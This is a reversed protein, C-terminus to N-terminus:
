EDNELFEKEAELQELAKNAADLLGKEEELATEQESLDSEALNVNGRVEDREAEADDLAEKYGTVVSNQEDYFGELRALASEADELLKNRRDIDGDLSAIEQSTGYISEAFADRASEKGHKEGQLNSIKNNTSTIASNIDNKQVLLGGIENQLSQIQAELEDIDDDDFQSYSQGPVNANANIEALLAEIAQKEATKQALLSNVGRLDGNSENLDNYFGSLRSNLNDIENQLNAKQSEADRLASYLGNRQEDLRDIENQINQAEALIDALAAQLRALAQQAQLWENRKLAVQEESANLSALLSDLEAQAAAVAAEQQSIGSKLSQAESRKDALEQNIEDIRDDITNQGQSISMGLSNAISRERKDIEAQLREGGTYGQYFKQAFDPDTRKYSAIANYLSQASQWNQTFQRKELTTYKDNASAREVTKYVNEAKRYLNTLDSLNPASAASAQLRIPSMHTSPRMSPSPTAAGGYSSTNAFNSIQQELDRMLDLYESPIQYVTYDQIKMGILRMADDIKLETDRIRIYSRRDSSILSLSEKVSQLRELERTCTTAAAKFWKQSRVQAADHELDRVKILSDLLNRQAEELIAADRPSMASGLHSQTKKKETKKDAKSKEETKESEASKGSGVPATDASIKMLDEAERLLNAYLTRTNQLVEIFKSFAPSKALSPYDKKVTTVLADAEFFVGSYRRIDQLLKSCDERSRNSKLEELRKKFSASTEELDTTYVEILGETLAEQNKSRKITESFDSALERALMSTTVAGKRAGGRNSISLMEGANLTYFEDTYKNRVRLKGKLLSFKSLGRETDEEVLCTTGEIGAVANSTEVTVAGETMIKKFNFWVKGGAVNYAMKSPSAEKLVLISEPKMITLTADRLNIAAGSNTGTRIRDNVYLITDEEAYEYAGDSEDDPRVNVEGYLNAFRAGSDTRAFAQINCLFLLSGLLLTILRRYKM